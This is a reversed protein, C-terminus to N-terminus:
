LVGKKKLVTRVIGISRMSMIERTTLEVSFAEEIAAVLKMGNVSDWNETNDPTSADGLTLPDLRLTEAFITILPDM